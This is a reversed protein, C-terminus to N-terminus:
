KKENEIYERIITDIIQTVTTDKKIALIKLDKKLDADINISMKVLKSM